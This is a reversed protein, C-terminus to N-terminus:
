ILYSSANAENGKRKYPEIELREVSHRPNTDDGRANKEVMFIAALLYIKTRKYTAVTFVLILRVWMMAQQLLRPITLKQFRFILIWNICEEIILSAM